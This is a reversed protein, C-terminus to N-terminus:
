DREIGHNRLDKNMQEVVSRPFKERTMRLAESADVNSDVLEIFYNWEKTGRLIM